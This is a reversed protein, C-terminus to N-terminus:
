TKPEGPKMGKAWGCRYVARSNGAYRANQIIRSIRSGSAGTQKIIETGSKGAAWLNLIKERLDDASIEAADVLPPFSSPAIQAFVFELDRVMRSGVRGTLFHFNMSVATM